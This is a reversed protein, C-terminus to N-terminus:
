PMAQPSRFFDQLATLFLPRSGEGWGIVWFTSPFCGGSAVGGLIRVRLALGQLQSLRSDVEEGLPFEESM